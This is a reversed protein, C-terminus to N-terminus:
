RSLRAILVGLALAAAVATLPHERVTTRLSETWQDGMERFEGARQQLTEGTGHLSDQWHRVHPGAQEALRDITQHAGQAVREVLDPTETTSPTNSTPLGTTDSDSAGPPFSSTTAM